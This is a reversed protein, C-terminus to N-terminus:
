KIQVETVIRFSGDCAGTRIYVTNGAIKAALLAAMMEKYNQGSGQLIANASAPSSGCASFTSGDLEVLAGYIVNTGNHGIAVEKVTGQAAHVGGFLGLGVFSVAIRAINMAKM